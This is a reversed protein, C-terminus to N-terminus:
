NKLISDQGLINKLAYAELRNKQIKEDLDKAKSSAANRRRQREQKLVFYTTTKKIEILDPSIGILGSVLVRQKLNPVDPGDFVFVPKIKFFMLKCIRNYLVLLHGNAHNKVGKTAQHL